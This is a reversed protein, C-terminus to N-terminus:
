VLPAHTDVITIDISTAGKLKALLADRQETSDGIIDPVKPDYIGLLICGLTDAPKNGGHMCIGDFLPVNILHPYIKNPDGRFPVMEVKYTGAPIATEGYVKVGAARTEDELTNCLFVGNVQLEGVTSITSYWKRTLIMHVATSDVPVPPPTPTGSPMVPVVNPTGSGSQPTPASSKLLSAFFNLIDGLNM